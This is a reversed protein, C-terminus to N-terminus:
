SWPPLPACWSRKRAFFMPGGRVCPPPAAACSQFRERWFYLCNKTSLASEGGVSQSRPVDTRSASVEELAGGRGWAEAGWPGEDPM